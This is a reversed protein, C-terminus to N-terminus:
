EVLKNLIQLFFVRLIIGDNLTIVRGDNWSVNKDTSSYQSWELQNKNNDKM